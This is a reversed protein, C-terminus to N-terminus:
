GKDDGANLNGISATLNSFVTSLLSSVSTQLLLYNSYIGVAVVGVFSSIIINDTSNLALSGIKYIILAGINDKIKRREM